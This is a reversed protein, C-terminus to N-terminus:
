RDKEAIKEESLVMIDDVYTLLLGKAEKTDGKKTIHWTNVDTEFRKLSYEDEEIKLSLETLRRDREKAWLLPSEQLGYIAMKVEWVENESILGAKIFVKPPILFLAEGEVKYPANLFATSM